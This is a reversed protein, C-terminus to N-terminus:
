HPTIEFFANGATGQLTTTKKPNTWWQYFEVFDVEACSWVTVHHTLAHHRSNHSNPPYSTPAEGGSGDDDMEAM